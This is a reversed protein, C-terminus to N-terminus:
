YVSEKSVGAGKKILVDQTEHLARMSISAGLSLLKKELGDYGRRWHHIGTVTTTGKAILGALVLACSGRIDAAVVSAGCLEPVGVITAKTHEVTISAGMKQLEPVHVLRNEFVTEEVISVGQAVCQAAMMPAQLDTPFGPYPGTKFSVAQPTKTARLAISNNTTDITICHGMEKLKLLFVDMAATPANCIVISGGTIAAALLLAGAELRDPMIEHEVPHLQAGGEIEITAPAKVSICAGMKKLVTILDMVEPELSANIILTTGTAGVATMICNETAGVSPYELVIRAGSFTGVQAHIFSANHTISVGMKVINKLHYDIPRAGISCGGPQAVRAKGFRVLLPGMVLISARMKQMISPDVQFSNLNMTDVELLKEEPVYRVKAGLSKLLGIMHRVDDSYPVNYLRSVGKTLILSAIIVLTANKAGYLSSEGCLPVSKKIVLQHSM